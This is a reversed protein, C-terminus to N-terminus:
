SNVRKRVARVPAVTSSTQAPKTLYDQTGLHLAKEESEGHQATLVGNV